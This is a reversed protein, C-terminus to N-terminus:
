VELGREWQDKEMLKSISHINKPVNKVRLCTLGKFDGIDYM